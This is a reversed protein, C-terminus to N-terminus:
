HVPRPHCRLPEIAFSSSAQDLWEKTEPTEDIWIWASPRSHRIAPASVSNQCSAAGYGWAALRDDDQLLAALTSSSFRADLQGSPAWVRACTNRSRSREIDARPRFRVCGTACFRVLSALTRERGSASM